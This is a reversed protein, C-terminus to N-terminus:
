GTGEAILEWLSKDGLLSEGISPLWPRPIRKKRLAMELLERKERRWHLNLLQPLIGKSYSFVDEFM